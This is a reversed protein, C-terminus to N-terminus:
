RRRLIAFADTILPIDLSTAPILNSRQKHLGFSFEGIWNQRINSNLRVAYNHGGTERTGQFAGEDVGFGSVIQLNQGYLHGKETTFDGFTTFTATNNNNIM